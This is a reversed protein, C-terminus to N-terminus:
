DMADIIVLSLEGFIDQWANQDAEAKWQDKLIDALTLCIAQVLHAFYEKKVGHKQHRQGTQQLLHVLMDTDPGLLSLVCDLMSVIRAAHVLVGMRLLPNAAITKATLPKNPVVPFGFVTQASSDLQFLHLLIDMGVNEDCGYKQRALEWTQMVRAISSYSLSDM